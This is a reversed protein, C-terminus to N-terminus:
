IGLCNFNDVTNITCIKTKDSYSRFAIIESKELNLKIGANNEFFIFDELAEHLNAETKTYVMIDYAYQTTKIESNKQTAQCFVNYKLVM